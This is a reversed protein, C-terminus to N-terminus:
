AVLKGPTQFRILLVDDSLALAAHYLLKMGTAPRTPVSHTLKSDDGVFLPRGALLGTYIGSLLGSVQVTCRTSTEKSVIVGFAPQVTPNVIDLKEVQYVGGVADATVRVVHRVEDSALCDAPVLEAAARRSISVAV